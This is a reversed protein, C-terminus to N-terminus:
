GNGLHQRRPPRFAGVPRHPEHAGRYVATAHRHRDAHRMRREDQRALRSAVCFSAVACAFLLVALVLVGATAM